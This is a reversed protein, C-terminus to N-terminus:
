KMPLSRVKFKFMNRIRGERGGWIDKAVNMERICLHGM